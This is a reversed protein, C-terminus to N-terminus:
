GILGHDLTYRVLEARVSLRLKQQIHSRHTEVTRVSLGLESAIEGNTHGLALLRLVDVERDSLGDPHVRGAGSEVSGAIRAQLYREGRVARRVAETLEEGAAEKLVYGLAGAELAQRVFGPEAHMTLVVIQTRPSERRVLPMVELSSGNPMSLDLVLVDPRTDLVLQHAAGASAAEGVVEFGPERDLLMRLGRRVVAHDDALVIRIPAGPDDDGPSLASEHRSRSMRAVIGPKGM